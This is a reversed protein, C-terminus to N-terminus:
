NMTEVSLLSWGDSGTNCGRKGSMDKNYTGKKVEDGKHETRRLIINNDDISM